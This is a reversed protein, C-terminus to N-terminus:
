TPNSLYLNEFILKEGAEWEVSDVKTAKPFVPNSANAANVSSTINGNYQKDVNIFNYKRGVGDTTIVFRIDKAIISQTIPNGVNLFINSDIRPIDLASLTITNSIIQNAANTANILYKIQRSQLALLKANFIAQFDLRNYIAASEGSYADDNAMLADFTAQQGRDGHFVKIEGAGPFTSDSAIVDNVSSVELATILSHKPIQLIATNLNDPSISLLVKNSVIIPPAILSAPVHQPLAADIIGAMDDRELITLTFNQKVDVIYGNGPEFYFLTNTSNQNPRFINGFSDTIINIKSLNSELVGEIRRSRELCWPFWNEGSSSFQYDFGNSVSGDNLTHTVKEGNELRLQTDRSNRNRIIKYVAEDTLNNLTSTLANNAYYINGNFDSVSILDPIRRFINNATAGVTSWKLYSSIYYIQGSITIRQDFLEVSAVQQEVLISNNENLITGDVDTINIIGAM